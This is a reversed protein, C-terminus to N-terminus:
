TIIRRQKIDFPLQEIKGFAKNHICIVNDWGLTNVAYGLEILVNPNPIGKERLKTIPTIDAIFISSKAIKNFISDVIDPSGPLARTAQDLTFKIYKDKENIEKISDQICKEIFKWNYEHKLDSQWSYFITKEIM